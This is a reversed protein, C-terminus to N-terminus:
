VMQNHSLVDRQEGNWREAEWLEVRLHLNVSFINGSLQHKTELSLTIRFSRFWVSTICSQHMLPSLGQWRWWQSFLLFLSLICAQVWLDPCCRTIFTHVLYWWLVMQLAPWQSHSALLQRAPNMQTQTLGVSSLWVKWQSMCEKFHSLVSTDEFITSNQETLSVVYLLHQELQTHLISCHWQM